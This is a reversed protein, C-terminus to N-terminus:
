AAKDGHIVADTKDNTSKSHEFIVLNSPSNSVLGPKRTKIANELIEDGIVVEKSNDMTAGIVKVVEIPRSM